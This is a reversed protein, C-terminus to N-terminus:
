YEIYQRSSDGADHETYRGSNRTYKDFETQATVYVRGFYLRKVNQSGNYEYLYINHWSAENLDNFTATFARLYTTSATLTPTVTQSTNTAENTLVIRYDNSENVMPRIYFTLSQATNIPKLVM